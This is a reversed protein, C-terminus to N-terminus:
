TWIVYVFVCVYFIRIVCVCIVRGVYLIDSYHVCLIDSYRVKSFCAAVLIAYSTASIFFVMFYCFIWIGDSYQFLGKGALALIISLPVFLSMFHLLWSLWLADGRLAMMMMGERMKTEKEQVLSKIVNALPLLLAIIMLLAFLYGVSGWFGSDTIKPNPFHALGATKLNVVNCGAFSGAGTATGSSYAPCATASAIFTHVSDMLTFLGMMGFHMLEQGGLESGPANPSIVSADMANSSTDPADLSKGYLVYTRNLRVTYDWAPAGSTFILASSYIDQTADIAYSDGRLTDVFAAESPFYKFTDARKVSASVQQMFAIYSHAAAEAAANGATAPAVAIKRPVCTLYAAPGKAFCTKPQLCSVVLNEDMCSPLKTTYLEDFSAGEHYNAPFNERYTTQGIAVKVGGLAVIIILPIGIELLLVKWGRVKLLANKWALVRFQRFFQSCCM